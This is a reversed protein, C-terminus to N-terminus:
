PKRELMIITDSGDEYVRGIRYGYKDAYRRVMARYAMFRSEESSKSTIILHKPYPDKEDKHEKRHHELFQRVAEMVTALIRWPMGAHTMQVSYNLSFDISWSGKAGWESIDVELRDGKDTTAAYYIGQTRKGAKRMSHVRLPYPKDFVESLLMAHEAFSRM